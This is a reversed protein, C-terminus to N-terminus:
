AKAKGADVPRLWALAQAAEPGSAGTQRMYEELAMRWAGVEALARHIHGDFEIIGAREDFFAQWDQRDWVALANPVQGSM